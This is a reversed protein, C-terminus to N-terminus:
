LSFDGSPHITFLRATFFLLTWWGGLQTVDGRWGWGAWVPEAERMFLARRKRRTRERERAPLQLNTKLHVLDISCQANGYISTCYQHSRNGLQYETKNM